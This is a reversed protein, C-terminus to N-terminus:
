FSYTLNGWVNVGQFANYARTDLADDKCDADLKHMRDYEYGIGLGVTFPNECITTNYAGAIYPQAMFSITYGPKETLRLTELTTATSACDVSFKEKFMTTFSSGFEFGWNCFGYHFATWANVFQGPTYKVELNEPYATTGKIEAFTRPFAYAYQAVAHWTLRNDDCHYLTCATDLGAGVRYSLIGLRDTGNVAVDQFTTANAYVVADDNNVPFGGLMFIGFHHDDNCFTWDYGGKLTVDDCGGFEYCHKEPYPYCCNKEPYECCNAFTNKLQGAQTLARIWFNCYNLQLQFEAGGFQTTGRYAENKDGYIEPYAVSDNVISKLYMYVPAVQFDVTPRECGDSYFHHYDALAYQQNFFAGESDRIVVQSDLETPNALFFRQQGYMISTLLCSVLLLRSYFNM